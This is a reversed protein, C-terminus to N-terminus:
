HYAHVVAHGMGRGMLWRNVPTTLVFAVALSFALSGWFLWATIGAAMAGPVVVMIANDIVEMVAISVTDAALAVKLAQRFPVGARLVGRMTLAYGFVFALAISLVVTAADHLGASTGIVMGLVEGIACGILCHLTAQAAMAWTVARQTGHGAHGEHAGAEM